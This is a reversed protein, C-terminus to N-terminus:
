LHSALNAVDNDLQKKPIANQAALPTDRDVDAQTRELNAQAVAVEAQGQDLAAQFPRPDIAYM